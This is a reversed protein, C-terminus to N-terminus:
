GRQLSVPTMEASKRKEIQEPNHRVNCHDLQAHCQAQSNQDSASLNGPDSLCINRGYTLIIEARCLKRDREIRLENYREKRIWVKKQVACVRYGTLAHYEKCDIERFLSDSASAPVTSAVAILSALSAGIALFTLRKM